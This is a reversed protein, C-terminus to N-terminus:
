RSWFESRAPVSLWCSSESNMDQPIDCLSIEPPMLARIEELTMGATQWNCEPSPPLALHVLSRPLRSVGRVTLQTPIGLVLFLTLFKPLVEPSLDKDEIAFGIKSSDMEILNPSSKMLTLFATRDLLFVRNRFSTLRKFTDQGVGIGKWVLLSPNIEFASGFAKLNIRQISKARNESPSQGQPTTSPTFDLVFKDIQQQNSSKLMLEYSEVLPPMFRSFQILATKSIKRSSTRIPTEDDSDLILEELEEETPKISGEEEEVVAFNDLILNNIVRLDHFSLMIPGDELSLATVNGSIHRISNPMASLHSATIRQESAVVVNRLGPPLAFLDTPDSVKLYVHHMERLSKPLAAFQSRTSLSNVPLALSITELSAPLCNIYDLVLEEMPRATSNKFEIVRSFHLFFTRFTRLGPPLTSAMIDEAAIPMSTLELDLLGRPLSSFFGLPLSSSTYSLHLITLLPPLDLLANNARQEEEGSSSILKLHLETLFLLKKIDLLVL